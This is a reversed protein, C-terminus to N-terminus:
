FKYNSKKSNFLIIQDKSLVKEIKLNANNNIYIIESNIQDQTKDKHMKLAEIQSAEILKIEQIKIAQKEDLGLDKAMIATTKKVKEVVKADMSHSHDDHMELSELSRAQVNINAISGLIFAGFTISKIIEKM